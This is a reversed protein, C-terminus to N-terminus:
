VRLPLTIQSVPTLFSVLPTTVRFPKLLLGGEVTVQDGDPVDGTIFM